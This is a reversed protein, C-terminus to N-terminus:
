EDIEMGDAVRESPRVGIMSTSENSITHASGRNRGERADPGRDLGRTSAEDDAVGSNHNRRRSNVDPSEAM